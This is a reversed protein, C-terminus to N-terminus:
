KRNTIHIAERHVHKAAEMLGESLTPHPHVSLALDQAAAGMELAM